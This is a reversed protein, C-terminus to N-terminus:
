AESIDTVKNEVDTTIIQTKENKPNVERVDERRRQWDDIYGFCNVHIKEGKTFMNAAGGGIIVDGDKGPVVYTSIRSSSEKSNVECHEYPVLNLAEILAPDLIISGEYSTTSETVTLEKAKSKLVKILM